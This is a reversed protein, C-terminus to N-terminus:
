RRSIFEHQSYKQRALLEARERLVPDPAFDSWAIRWEVCGVEGM